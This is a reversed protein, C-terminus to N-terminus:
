ETPMLLPPSKLTKLGNGTMLLMGKYPKMIAAHFPDSGDGWDGIRPGIRDYAARVKSIHLDHRSDRLEDAREILIRANAPSVTNGCLTLGM